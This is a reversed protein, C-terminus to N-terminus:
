PGFGLVEGGISGFSVRSNEINGPFGQIVDFNQDNKQENKTMYTM